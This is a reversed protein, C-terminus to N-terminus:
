EKFHSGLGAWCQLYHQQLQESGLAFQTPQWVNRSEFMFALSGTYYEPKLEQQQAKAYSDADPGHATMCNHLSCGGPAFKEGKADYGGYVLGMFESMVNRHFYPPRFTHEAVLWREPFIVFDINAVGPTDSVSTLVTFISPDAHDFSVTNMTNFNALNYKYPVYNGHWAVVNLPSHDIHAQWLNGQFKNILHFDGTDESYAAVPILFDRPNALGNAGIPGLDPLRLSSATNECIYGRAAEDLCEVYYKVGRPIVLIEGPEVECIGFETNFILKGLQPVILFEGDSNYFFRKQMSSNCAYIYISSGNDQRAIAHLGDLFDTPTTPLELPSWRLQNPPTPKVVPSTLLRHPLPNFDGHCVSPRIRYLWSRLNTNRPATFATGSLQETYLGHAVKQPSNQGQPLTNEIAESAFHNNFGTQYELTM